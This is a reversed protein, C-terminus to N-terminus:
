RLCFERCADHRSWKKGQLVNGQSEASRRKELIGVQRDGFAISNADDAPVPGAFRCEHLDRRAEDLRIASRPEHLRADREAVQRLLRIEAFVLRHQGIDLASMPRAVVGIPRAQKQALQPKRTLLRGGGEGAALGPSRSQRPRKRWVRIHKKQILRCVVEVNLDDLPKLFPQAAHAGREQQDAM